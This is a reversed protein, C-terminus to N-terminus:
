NYESGSVGVGFGRTSGVKTADEVALRRVKVVRLWELVPSQTESHSKCHLINRLRTWKPGRHSLCCAQTSLVATTLAMPEPRDPLRMQQTNPGPLSQNVPQTERNGILIPSKPHLHAIRYLNDAVPDPGRSSTASQDCARADHLAVIDVAYISSPISQYQVRNCGALMARVRCPLVTSVSDVRFDITSDIRDMAM